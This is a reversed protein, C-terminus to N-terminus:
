SRILYASTALERRISDGVLDHSAQKRATEMEERKKVNEESFESDMERELM